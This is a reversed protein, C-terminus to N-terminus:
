LVNHIHTLFSAGQFLSFGFPTQLFVKNLVRKLDSKKWCFIDVWGEFLICKGPFGFQRYLRVYLPQSLEVHQLKLFCMCISFAGAFWFCRWWNSLLSNRKKTTYHANAARANYFNPLQKRLKCTNKRNAACQAREAVMSVLNQYMQTSLPITWGFIFIRDDNVWGWTTGFRYSHRQEVSCLPLYESSHPFCLLEPAGNVEM